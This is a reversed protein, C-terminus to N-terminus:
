FNSCELNAGDGLNSTSHLLIVIHHEEGVGEVFAADLLIIQLFFFFAALHYPQM